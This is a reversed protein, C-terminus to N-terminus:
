RSPSYNKPDGLHFTHRGEQVSLRQNTQGSANGDIYVSRVDPFIVKVFEM